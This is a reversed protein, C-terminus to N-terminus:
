HGAGLAYPVRPPTGGANSIISTAVTNSNPGIPSYYHFAISNGSKIIAASFQEATMGSPVAIEYNEKRRGPNNFAARDQAYTPGTVKRTPRTSWGPTSFQADIVPVCDESWHWVIVGCHRLAAYKLLFNLPRCTMTVHSASLNAVDEGLVACSVASLMMAAAMRAFLTNAWQM